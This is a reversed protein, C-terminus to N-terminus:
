IAEPAGTTLARWRRPLGLARNLGRTAPQELFRYVIFALGIAGAFLTACYLPLTIETIPAFRELAYGLGVFFAYHVLYLSYSADGLKELATRPSLPSRGGGRGFRATGM